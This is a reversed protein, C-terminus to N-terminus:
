VVLLVTPFDMGGVLLAVKGGFLDGATKPASARFTWFPSPQSSIHSVRQSEALGPGNRDRMNKVTQSCVLKAPWRLFTTVKLKPSFREFNPHVEGLTQGQHYGRIWQKKSTGGSTAPPKTDLEAM